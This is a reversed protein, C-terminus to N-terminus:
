DRTLMKNLLSIMLFQYLYTTVSLRKLFVVQVSAPIGVAALFSESCAAEAEYALCSLSMLLSLSVASRRFLKKNNKVPLHFNNIKM